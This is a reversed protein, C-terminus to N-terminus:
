CLSVMITGFLGLIGGGIGCPVCGLLGGLGWLGGSILMANGIDNCTKGGDNPNVGKPNGGGKGKGTEIKGAFESLVGHVGKQMFFNYTASANAGANTAEATYQALTGKYGMAQMQQYNANITATTVAAEFASQNAGVYNDVAVSTGDSDWQALQKRILAAMKARQAQTLTGAQAANAYTTMQSQFGSIFNLTPPTPPNQANVFVPFAAIVFALVLSLTKRM